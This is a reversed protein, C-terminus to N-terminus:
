LICECTCTSSIRDGYLFIFHKKKNKVEVSSEEVLIIEVSNSQLQHTWHEVNGLLPLYAVGRVVGVRRLFVPILYVGLIAALTNLSLEGFLAIISAPPRHIQDFHTSIHKALSFARSM